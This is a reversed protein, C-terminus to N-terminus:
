SAGERAPMRALVMGRCDRRVRQSPGHAEDCRCSVVRREKRAGAFIERPLRSAVRPVWGRHARSEAGSEAVMQRTVQLPMGSARGDCRPARMSPAGHCHHCSRGAPRVRGSVPDPQCHFDPAVIAFPQQPPYRVGPRCGFTGVACRCSFKAGAATTTAHPDRHRVEPRHRLRADEVIAMTAPRRRGVGFKGHRM